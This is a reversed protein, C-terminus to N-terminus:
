GPEYRVLFFHVGKKAQGEEFFREMVKGDFGHIGQLHTRITNWDAHLDEM